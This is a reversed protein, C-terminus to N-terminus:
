EFGVDPPPGDANPANGLRRQPGNLLISGHLVIPQRGECYPTYMQNVPDRRSFMPGSPGLVRLVFNMTEVPTALNEM